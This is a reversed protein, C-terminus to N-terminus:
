SPLRVMGYSNWLGRTTQGLHHKLLEKGPITTQKPESNNVRRMLGQYGSKQCGSAVERQLFITPSRAHQALDARALRSFIDVFEKTQGTGTRDEEGEEVGVTAEELDGRLDGAAHGVAGRTWSM